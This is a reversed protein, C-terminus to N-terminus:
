AGLREHLTRTGGRSRRRQVGCQLYCDNKFAHAAGGCCSCEIWDVQDVIQQADTGTEEDRCYRPVGMFQVVYTCYMYPSYGYTNTACCASNLIKLLMNSMRTIINTITYKLSRIQCMSKKSDFRVVVCEGTPSRFIRQYRGDTSDDWAVQDLADDLKSDSLASRLPLKFIVFDLENPTPEPPEPPPSYLELKLCMGRIFKLEKAKNNEVINIADQFSLFSDRAAASRHCALM